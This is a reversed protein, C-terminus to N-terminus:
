SKDLYLTFTLFQCESLTLLQTSFIFVQDLALIGETLGSFVCVSLRSHLTIGIEQLNVVPCLRVAECLQWLFCSDKLSWGFPSEPRRCQSPLCIYPIPWVCSAKPCNASVDSHTERHLHSLRQQFLCFMDQKEPSLHICGVLRMRRRVHRSVCLEERDTPATSLMGRNTEATGNNISEATLAFKPFSTEIWTRKNTGFITHTHTHLRTWTVEPRCTRRTYTRSM